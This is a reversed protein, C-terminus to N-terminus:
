RRPSWGFRAVSATLDPVVTECEDPVCVLTIWARERDSAISWARLEVPRHAYTDVAEVSAGAATVGPVEVDWVRVSGSPEHMRLALILGEAEAVPDHLDPEPPGPDVVLLEVEDLGDGDLDRGFTAVGAGRMRLHLGAPVDFRFPFSDQWDASRDPVATRAPGDLADFGGSGVRPAHVTISAFWDDGFVGYLVTWGPESTTPIPGHGVVRHARVGDARAVDDVRVGTFGTNEFGLRATEVWAAARDDRADDADFHRVVVTSLTASTDRHARVGVIGTEVWGDDFSMRLGVGGPDEAGPEGAGPDPQAVAPGALAFTLVLLVILARM